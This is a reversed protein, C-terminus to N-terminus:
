LEFDHLSNKTTQLTKASRGVSNRNLTFPDDVDVDHDSGSTSSSSGGTHSASAASPDQIRGGSGGNDNGNDNGNGYGNSDTDGYGDLQMAIPVQLSHTPLLSGKRMAGRVREANGGYAEFSGSSTGRTSGSTSDSSTDKNTSDNNMMRAASKESQVEKEVDRKWRHYHSASKSILGFKHYNFVLLEMSSIDYTTPSDIKVRILRMSNKFTSSIGNIERVFVMTSFIIIFVTVCLVIENTADSDTFTKFSACFFFFTFPIVAVKGFLEVLRVAVLRLPHEVSKAILRNSLQHMYVIAAMM